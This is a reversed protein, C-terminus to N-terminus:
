STTGLIGHGGPMVVKMGYTLRWKNWPKLTETETTRKGFNKEETLGAMYAELDIRVEEETMGKERSIKIRESAWRIIEVATPTYAGNALIDEDIAKALQKSADEAWLELPNKM